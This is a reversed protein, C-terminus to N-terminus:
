PSRSCSKRFTPPWCISLCSRRFGPQSIPGRRAIEGLDDVQGSRLMEDYHIALAMLRSIRPIKGSRLDSPPTAPRARRPRRPGLDLDLKREVTIM